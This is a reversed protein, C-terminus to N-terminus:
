IQLRSRVPKGIDSLQRVAAEIGDAVRAVAIKWPCARLASTTSWSPLAPCARVSPLCPLHIWGARIPLGNKAIHHM